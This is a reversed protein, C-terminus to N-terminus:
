DTSFLLHFYLPREGDDFQYQVVFIISCVRENGNWISCM